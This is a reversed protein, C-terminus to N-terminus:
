ILAIGEDQTLVKRAEKREDRKRKKETQQHQKVLGTLNEVYDDTKFNINNL